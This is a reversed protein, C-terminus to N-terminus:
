ARRAPSRLRRNAVLLLGLSSLILGYIPMTPVVSAGGGVLAGGIYLSLNELFPNATQMFNVDLVVVLGGAPANGLTGQPFGLATGGAVGDDTLFVGNGSSLGGGSGGGPANYTFSAVANPTTGIVPNVSQTSNVAVFSISGGGAASILNFVSNNRTAFGSNEGMVFMAGGSQMFNIFQTQEGASIPNTNSFRIDWIQDYGALSGPVPDSITTTNGQSQLLADLTSTIDSTTGPESTNTAGNIILINAAQASNVLPLLLIGITFLISRFSINM